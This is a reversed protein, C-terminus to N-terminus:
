TTTGKTSLHPVVASRRGRNILDLAAVLGAAEVLKTAVALTDMPEQEPHLVPVGSTIALVYSVLLGALVLSAIGLERPGGDRSLAVVLGALLLTAVLFGLGPGLGEDFHTPTLAGHIGASVACVVVVLDRELEIRANV